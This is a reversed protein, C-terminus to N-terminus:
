ESTGGLKKEIRETLGTTHSEKEVTLIAEIAKAKNEGRIWIAGNQGTFIECETKQKIMNIMSGGKGILRPIKTPTIKILVGGYLKRAFVDRMSVQIVKQKTVRSVKCFIIDGVDYYRNLDARQVDVFEEVAESLPLFAVYPSNIDVLWGSIEVEKITAVVRDGFRPIYRAALPVVSIEVDSIKPIGLVKAFVKENELYVGQGIKRGKRDDLFEGPLVIERNTM